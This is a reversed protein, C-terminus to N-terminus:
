VTATTTDQSNRSRSLRRLQVFLAGVAVLGLGVIEKPGLKEDLFLAALIPIWITMTGNIISSETASLTRLTYNWITYSFATNVLALWAIILWGQPTIPPLGQALIGVPLLVASGIVMPITTIIIPSIEGSRNVSRGLIAATANALIGVLAAIIGFYQSGQLGVPYFYLVTGIITIIIGCWQLITQSERILIMSFIAVAVTSFSWMLNVSVAPLYSLAIFMAGQTVAYLVIGLTILKTWPLTALVGRRSVHRNLFLFPLLFICAMSYRLGAFTLAPIDRLGHKILIWSTSWLFAVSLGAIISLGRHKGRKM